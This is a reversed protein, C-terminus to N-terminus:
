STYVSINKHTVSLISLSGFADRPGLTASSRVDDRFVAGQGGNVGARVWSVVLVVVMVSVGVSRRDERAACGAVARLRWCIGGQLACQWAVVGVGGQGTSGRSGGAGISASRLVGWHGPWGGSLRLNWTRGHQGGGYSSGVDGAHSPYWNHHWRLVLSARQHLVLCKWQVESSSMMDATGCVSACRFPHIPVSLSIAETQFSYSTM